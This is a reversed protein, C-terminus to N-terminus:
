FSRMAIPQDAILDIMQISSMVISWLHFIPATFSTESLALIRAWIRWIIKLAKLCHETLDSMAGVVSCHRSDTAYLCSPAEAIEIGGIFGCRGALNAPAPKKTCAATDM